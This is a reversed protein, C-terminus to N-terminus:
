SPHISALYIMTESHHTFFEFDKSLRRYAGLWAFTREVVWRWPIVEFGKRLFKPESPTNSETLSPCNWYPSQCPPNLQHLS